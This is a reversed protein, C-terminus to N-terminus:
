KGRSSCEGHGVFSGSSLLRVVVLLVAGLEVEGRGRVPDVVRVTQDIVVALVVQKILVVGLAAISVPVVPGDM